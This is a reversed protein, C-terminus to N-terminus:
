KVATKLIGNKITFLKFTDSEVQSEEHLWNLHKLLTNCVEETSEKYVIVPVFHQIIIKVNAGFQQSVLTSVGKGKLFQIISQGKKKSGHVHEEDM